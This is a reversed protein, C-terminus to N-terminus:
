PSAASTKQDVHRKHRSECRGSTLWHDPLFAKAHRAVSDSLVIDASGTVIQLANVAVMGAYRPIVLLMSRLPKFLHASTISTHLHM